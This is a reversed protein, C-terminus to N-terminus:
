ALPCQRSSSSPSLSGRLRGGIGSAHLPRTPRGWAPVGPTIQVQSRRRTVGSRRRQTRVDCRHPRVPPTARSANGTAVHREAQASTARGPDLAVVRGPRHIFARTGAASRRRWSPFSAAQAHATGQPAGDTRQLGPHGVAETTAQDQGIASREPLGRWSTPAYSLM